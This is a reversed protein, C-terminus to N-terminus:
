VDFLVNELNKMESFLRSAKEGVAEALALILDEFNLSFTKARFYEFSGPREEPRLNPYFVYCHQCPWEPSTEVDSLSDPTLQDLFHLSDTHFERLFVDMTDSHINKLDRNLIATRRLPFFRCPRRTSLFEREPDLIDRFDREMAKQKIFFDDTSTKERYSSIIQYVTLKSHDLWNKNLVDSVLEGRLVAVRYRLQALWNLFVFSSKYTKSNAINSLIYECHDNLGFILKLSILIIAVCSIEPSTPPFYKRNFIQSFNQFLHPKLRQLLKKSKEFLQDPLNFNYLMKSLYDEYDIMVDVKLKLGQVLSAVWYYNNCLIRPIIKSFHIRVIQHQLKKPLEDSISFFHLHRDHALQLLDALSVKVGSKLIGLFLFYITFSHRPQLSFRLTHNSSSSTVLTTDEYFLDEQSCTPEKSEPIITSAEQCFAIKQIRLYAVWVNFVGKQIVKPLGLQILQDVQKRLLITYAHYIANPDIQDLLKNTSTPKAAAVFPTSVKLAYNHRETQFEEDAEVQRYVQSQSQCLMCFYLGDVLAFDVSGCCECVQDM